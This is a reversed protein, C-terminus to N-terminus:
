WLKHCYLHVNGLAIRDFPHPALPMAGTGRAGPAIASVCSQLRNERGRGSSTPM